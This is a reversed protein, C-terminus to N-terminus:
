SVFGYKPTIQITLTNAGGKSPDNWDTLSMSGSANVEVAYDPSIAALATDITAKAAQRIAEEPEKCPSGNAFQTAICDRVAPAKGIAGVSWSM